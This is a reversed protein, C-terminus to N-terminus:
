RSRDFDVRAHGKLRARTHDAQMQRSPRSLRAELFQKRSQKEMEVQSDVTLGVNSEPAPRPHEGPKALQNELQVLEARTVIAPTGASFSTRSSM